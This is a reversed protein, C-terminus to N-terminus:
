ASRSKVCTISPLNSKSTTPRERRGAPHTEIPRPHVIGVVLPRSLFRNFPVLAELVVLHEAASPAQAEASALAMWASWRM